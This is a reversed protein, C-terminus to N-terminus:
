FRNQLHHRLDALQYQLTPERSYKRVDDAIGAELDEDDDESDEESDDESDVM